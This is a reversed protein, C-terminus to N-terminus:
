FSGKKLVGMRELAVGSMWYEIVGCPGTERCKKLNEVGEARDKENKSRILKVGIYFYAACLFPKRVDPKVASDATKLLDSSNLDGACFGAIAKEMPSLGAKLAYEKIVAAAASENGALAGLAYAALAMRPSAREKKRETLVALAENDKGEAYCYVGTATLAADPLNQVSERACEFFRRAEARRDTECCLRGMVVLGPGIDTESSALPGLLAEVKSYNGLNLWVSALSYIYTKEGPALRAAEEFSSRAGDFKFMKELIRGAAHHAAANKADLRLARRYASLSEEDRGLNALADGLSIHLATRDPSLRVAEELVGVATADEGRNKLWLAYNGRLESDAPAANIAKEYIAMAMENRSSASVADAVAGLVAADTVGREAARMCADAAKEMEGADLYARALITWASALDRTGSLEKELFAIAEAYKKEDLLAAAYKEVADPFVASAKKLYELAKEKESAFYLMTGLLYDADPFDPVLSKIVPALEQTEAKKWDHGKLAADLLFLGLMEKKTLNALYKGPGICAADLKWKIRFNANSPSDFYDPLDINRYLDADEYRLFVHLPATTVYLPIGARNALIYLMAAMSVSGGSGTDMLECLRPGGKEAYEVHKFDEDEVFELLLNIKERPTPAGELEEQVAEVAEALRARFEAANASPNLNTELTLCAELVDVDAEPLAAIKKFEAAINAANEAAYLAPVCAFIVAMALIM